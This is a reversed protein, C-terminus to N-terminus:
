RSSQKLRLTVTNGQQRVRVSKSSVALLTLGAVREGAALDVNGRGALHLVARLNGPLGYVAKLQVGPENPINPSAQPAPNEQNTNYIEAQLANNQAVTKKRAERQRVALEEQDILYGVSTRWAPAPSSAEPPEVIMRDSSYDGSISQAVASNVFLGLVVVAISNRFLNRLFYRFLRNMLMMASM